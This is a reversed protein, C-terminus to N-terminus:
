KSICWIQLFKAKSNRIELSPHEPALEAERKYIRKTVNSKRDSLVPYNVTVLSETEIQEM